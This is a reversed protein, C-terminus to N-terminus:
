SLNGSIMYLLIKALPHQSGDEQFVSSTQNPLLINTVPDISLLSIEM